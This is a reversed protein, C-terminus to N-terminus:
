LLCFFLIVGLTFLYLSFWRLDIGRIIRLMFKIAAIGSVFAAAFALVINGLSVAIVEGGSVIEYLLSAVVIPVSMLFSFDASSTKDQGALMGATITFGSRSFGPVVAVGQAFGQAVAHTWHRANQKPKMVAPLALVVATIIFAFPLVRITFFRGIFDKMILVFACSVATAIVIKWSFLEHLRNRYVAVVALLTATHLIINFLLGGDTIGFLHGFLLLHGSSSVPLFEAIGQLLGLFLAAYWAM